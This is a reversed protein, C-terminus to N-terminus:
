HPCAQFRPHTRVRGRHGHQRAGVPLDARALDNGRHLLQALRRRHDAQYVPWYKRSGLPEATRTLFLVQAFDATAARRRIEAVAAPPDEYNVVVSARLRKDKGTWEALQWDNTAACIANALDPNQVGQGSGLPNLIGIEVNNADLHQAQMFSLSSGQRGGEPPVADRRSANPQSKPFAPGNAWGQRPRKGYAALNEIWRRALFPHLDTESRVAPHIDGDAIALRSAAAPATAPLDRVQINM